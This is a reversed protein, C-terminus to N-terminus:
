ALGPHSMPERKRGVARRATQAETITKERHHDVCLWQLNTLTHDDGATIHDCESGPETCRGQPTDQQCQGNARRKVQERLSKWNGPLRQARNTKWVM